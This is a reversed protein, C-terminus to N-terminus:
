GKVAGSIIGKVFYKQVFPYICVIPLAVLIISAMQYNRPNVLEVGPRAMLNEKPMFEMLKQFVIVRLFYQLTWLEKESVYLLVPFWMNWMGLATFMGIAAITASVSPIVVHFLAQRESAGDIVAADRISPPIAEIQSRIVIIHFVNVISPLFLALYNNDLRLWNKILIYTPVLGGSFYMTLVFVYTILKKGYFERSFGYAAMTNVILALLVTIVTLGVTNVLSRLFVQKGLIEGYAKLDFGKPFIGVSNTNVAEKSSVSVSIIHMLPLIILLIVMTLFIFDIVQFVIEDKNKKM